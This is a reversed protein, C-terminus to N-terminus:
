NGIKNRYGVSSENLSQQVFLISNWSVIGVWKPDDACKRGHWNPKEWSTLWNKDMLRLIM